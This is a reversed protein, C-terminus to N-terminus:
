LVDVRVEIDLDLDLFPTLYPTSLLKALPLGRRIELNADLLLLPTLHPWNFLKQKKVFYLMSNM